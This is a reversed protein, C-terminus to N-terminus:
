NYRLWTTVNADADSTFRIWKAIFGDPLPKVLKEGPKVTYAAYKMWQGDGTPDMEITITVSRDSRQTITLTKKDYYGILYPDSPVGARVDDKVWPGGEGVPKAMKWLDDIAGTWITCKGDASSFLHSRDAASSLHAGNAATGLSAGTMVLMGRYSAYDNILLHHTAIPRIKAFGDANEAPLEYFTGGCDFLDRETAVERCVRLARQQMLQGYRRDGLPLRWRRNADDTILYSGKDATVVQAPIAMRSRIFNATTDNNDKKMVKMDGDMEYYGTEQITGNTMEDTLIGLARRNDGLAYLLGGRCGKASVDALPAFMRDNVAPRVRTDGYVLSVTCLTPQDTKVRLWEGAAGDFSFHASQAAGVKVTRLTTWQNNGKVDVEFTFNVTQQGDNKIWATRRKWGAMLYPDSVANARVNENQWVSGSADTTGTNAPQSFSTFWLNSQSQGPGAIGGKAKRKNLFESQAADDCGFVLRGNWQCFDGIVKLYSSLPRLGAATAPTFTQPFHWFMGHMTMLYDPKGATGVNRIRPWETNWGHAGDYSNSAKPLRYFTWGGAVTRVGLLVSKYDWGLSWLPDTDPHSSGYIGGSSTIETFQNRRILKWATGDYEGLAGSKTRPNAKAEPTNEGNNAFFYLGQGSYFGKGHDGPLLTGHYTKEGNKKLINGDTFLTNVKLTNVDVEYIGQEMTAILVKHVPDSLSRCMGTLRGPMDSVPIVRVKGAADIAYPGIFLQNSERHILRNAPTGGISEPRVTEKLSRSIQYLKDTSGFPKHPGYTIVWLNGAWPVVAGTGCEGEGNFYALGPYIGSVCLPSRGSAGMPPVTRASMTQVLACLSLATFCNTLKKMM